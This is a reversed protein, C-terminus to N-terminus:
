RTATKCCGSLKSTYKPDDPDYAVAMGGRVLAIEGTKLERLTEKNLTLRKILQPKSSQASNAINTNM